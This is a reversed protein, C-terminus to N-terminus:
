GAVQGPLLLLTLAFVAYVMLMLVGLFWASRGGATVIFATFVAIFMMLVAGPWFQLTMPEPGLVYSLLVLVPAVFLAIQTASGFAISLSLDLRDKAAASFATAMEAAAGVIAVVVFGVFAPTLGFTTAAASLSGIFIESILAVLVTVGALTALATALPLHEGEDEHAAGAFEARHTGLSFALGLAYTILLLVAIGLSLQQPLAANETAAIGSPVMIAFAALLLLGVQLRANAMNFQQTHHRLGGILLAAGMMFLTNAV